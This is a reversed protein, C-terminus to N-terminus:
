NITPDKYETHELVEEITKNLMVTIGEKIETKFLMDTEAIEIYSFMALVLCQKALLHYAEVDDLEKQVKLLESHFEFGLTAFKTAYDNYLKVAADNLELYNESDEDTEECM